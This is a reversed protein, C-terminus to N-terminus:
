FNKKNKGVVENFTLFRSHDIFTLFYRKIDTLATMYKIYNSRDFFHIGKIQNKIM